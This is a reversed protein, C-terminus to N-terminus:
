RHHFRLELTAVDIIAVAPGQGSDCDMAVMRTLFSATGTHFEVRRDLHLHFHGHVFVAPAVAHFAADMRVRGREAYALGNDTWSANTATLLQDLAAHHPADHALMLDARGATIVTTVDDPTISEEPWWGRGETRYEYDISNAGGLALLRKGSLLTTTYVRPLYGISRRVWRIGDRDPRIANLLAYGEHNGGLFYLTQGTATLQAQLAELDTRDDDPDNWAFGFDGLQIVVLV